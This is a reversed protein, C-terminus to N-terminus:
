GIEKDMEQKIISTIEKILDMDIEPIEKDLVYGRDKAVQPLDQVLPYMIKEISEIYADSNGLEECFWKSKPGNFWPGDDYGAKLEGLFGPQIEEIFRWVAIHFPFFYGWQNIPITNLENKVISLLRDTDKGTTMKGKYPYRGTLRGKCGDALYILRFSRNALQQHYLTSYLDTNM